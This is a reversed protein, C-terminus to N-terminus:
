SALNHLVSYQFLNKQIHQPSVFLIIESKEELDDFDLIRKEEASWFIVRNDRYILGKEYMQKFIELQLFEYEKSMTYYVSKVDFM